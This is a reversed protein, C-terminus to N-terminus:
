SMPEMVVLRCNFSEKNYTVAFTDGIYIKDGVNTTPTGANPITSQISYGLPVATTEVPPNAALTPTIIGLTLLVVLFVSLIKKM